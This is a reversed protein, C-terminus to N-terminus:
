PALASPFCVIVRGEHNTTRRCSSTLEVFAQKQSIPVNIEDKQTFDAM